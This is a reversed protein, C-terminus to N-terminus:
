LLRPPYTIFVIRSFYLHILYANPANMMANPMKIMTRARKFKPLNCSTMLMTIALEKNTNPRTQKITVIKESVCLPKVIDNNILAAIMAAPMIKNIALNPIPKAIGFISKTYIIETNVNTKPVAQKNM